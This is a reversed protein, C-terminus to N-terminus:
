RGLDKRSSTAERRDNQTPPVSQNLSTYSPPVDVVVIQESVPQPLPIGSDEHMRTVIIPTTSGDPPSLSAQQRTSTEGLVPLGKVAKPFKGPNDGAVFNYRLTPHSGDTFPVIDMAVSGPDVSYSSHRKSEFHRQRRRHLLFGAICLLSILAISITIAAAVTATHPKARASPSNSRTPASNTSSTPVSSASSQAPPAPDVSLSTDTTTVLLSM